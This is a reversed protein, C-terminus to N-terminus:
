DRKAETELDQFIPISISGVEYIQQLILHSLPHLMNLDNSLVWYSNM